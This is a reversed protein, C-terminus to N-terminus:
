CTLPTPGMLAVLAAKPGPWSSGYSRTISLRLSFPPEPEAIFGLSRFIFALICLWGLTKCGFSFLCSVPCDSWSSGERCFRDKEYASLLCPLFSSGLSILEAYILRLKLLLSNIPSPSPSSGASSVWDLLITYMSVLSRSGRSFGSFSNLFVMALPWPIKLLSQNTWNSAHLTILCTQLCWWLRM